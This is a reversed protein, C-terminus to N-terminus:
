SLSYHCPPRWVGAADYSVPPSSNYFNLSVAIPQQALSTQLAPMQYVSSPKCAQGFKCAKGTKSTTQMDECCDCCEMMVETMAESSTHMPCQEVGVGFGAYGYFPLAFSLLLIMFLRFIRM